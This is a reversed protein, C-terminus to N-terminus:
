FDCVAYFCEKARQEEDFLLGGNKRGKVPFDNLWSVDDSVGWLTVAEIENKYERFIGFAKRYIEAQKKYEDFTPKTHPEKDEYPYLSVDLETIHIKMGLEAYKEIGIKIEDFDVAHNLGLHCQLGVGSVPIGLDGLRKVLNIYKDRKIPNFENYDNYFLTKGKLYKGATEFSREFYDEGVTELWPTKRLLVEEGDDIGENIVDWCYIDPYREALVKVHGDLDSLLRERDTNEFLWGPIERHWVFNHGRVAIGNSRAFGYIKDADEFSYEDRKPHIIGFKMANECTISNFHKLILEKHSDLSDAGVAAGIMFYDKYVDKLGFRM